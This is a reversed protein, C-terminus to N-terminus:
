YFMNVHAWEAPGLGVSNLWSCPTDKMPHSLVQCMEQLVFSTYIQLQLSFAAQGQLHNMIDAWTRGEPWQGTFHCGKVVPDDM